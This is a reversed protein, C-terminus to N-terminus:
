NECVPYTDGPDFDFEVTMPEPDGVPLVLTNLAFPGTSLSFDLGIVCRLLDNSRRASIVDFPASGPLLEPWRLRVGTAEERQALFECFSATENGCTDAHALVLRDARRVKGTQFIERFIGDDLNVIKYEGQETPRGADTHEGEHAPVITDFRLTYSALVPPSSPEPTPSGGDSRRGGGGSSSGGGTTSGPDVVPDDPDPVACRYWDYQWLWADCNGTGRDWGMCLNWPSDGPQHTSVPIGTWDAGPFPSDKVAYIHGPCIRDAFAQPAVLGFAMVCVAGVIFGQWFNPWSWAREQAQLLSPDLDTEWWDDRM